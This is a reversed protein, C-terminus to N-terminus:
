ETAPCGQMNTGYRLLLEVRRNKQMLASDANAEKWRWESYSDGMKRDAPFYEGYSAASMAIEYPSIEMKHLFEFVADARASALHLNDKFSRCGAPSRRDAHGLIQIEVISRSQKKIERSIQELMTEGVTGLTDDCDKFGLVSENFTIHLLLSDHSDQQFTVLTEERGRASLVWKNENRLKTAHVDSAFQSECDQAQKIRQGLTLYAAGIVLLLLLVVALMSDGFAPWFNIDESPEDIM